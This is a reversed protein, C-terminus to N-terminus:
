PRSSATSDAYFRLYQFALEAAPNDEPLRGDTRWNRQVVVVLAHRWDGAAPARPDGILAAYWKVSQYACSSADRVAPTPPPTSAEEPRAPLGCDRRWGPDRLSRSAGPTGTKGAVWGLADCAEASFAGRCARSATGGRSPASSGRMGELVIDTAARDLRVSATAPRLRAEALRGNEIVFAYRFLHPLPLNERGLSANGLHALMIAVGLPTMRADGQGLGAARLANLTDQGCGGGRRTRWPDLGDDGKHQACDAALKPDFAVRIRRWREATARDNDRGLGWVGADTSLRERAADTASWAPTGGILGYRGCGPLGALCGGNLGVEEAVQWAFGARPCNRYGRDRCLFRDLFAASDSTALDAVFASREAPIGTLRKAYDTDRLMGLAMMPKVLSGPHYGYYLAHNELMTPIYRTPSPLDPCRTRDRVGGGYDDRFCPTDASAAALIEGSRIDLLLAGVMRVRAQEFYRQDTPIPVAGECRETRGTYCEALSQLRTQIAPDITAVVHPTQPVRNGLIELTNTAKEPMEIQALGSRLLGISIPLVREDVLDARYRDLASLPRAPRAGAAMEAPNLAQLASACLAAGVAANREQQLVRRRGEQELFVCGSPARWPNWRTDMSGAAAATRASDNATAAPAYWRLAELGNRDIWALATYLTSCRFRLGADGAAIGAEGELASRTLAASLHADLRAPDIRHPRTPLGPAQKGQGLSRLRADLATLRKATDAGPCRQSVIQTAPADSPPTGASAAASAPPPTTAPVIASAIVELGRQLPANRHAPAIPATVHERLAYVTIALTLLVLTTALGHIRRLLPYLM